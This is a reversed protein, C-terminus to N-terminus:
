REITKYKEFRQFEHDIIQPPFNNNLLLIRLDEM